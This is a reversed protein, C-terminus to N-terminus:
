IIDSSYQTNFIKWVTIDGWAHPAPQGLRETQITPQIQAFVSKVRRTHRLNVLVNQKFKLSYKHLCQNGEVHTASPQGLYEMQTTRLIQAFVSKVRPTHCLSVLTTRRFQISFEYFVNIEGWVHPVPQRLHEAQSSQPWIKLVLAGNSQSNSQSVVRDVVM